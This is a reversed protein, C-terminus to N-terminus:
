VVRDHYAHISGHLMRAFDNTGDVQSLDHKGYESNHTTYNPNSSDLYHSYPQRRPSDMISNIYGRRPKGVGDDDCPPIRTRVRPVRKGVDIEPLKVPGTKRRVERSAGCPLPIAPAKRDMFNPDLRDLRTGNSRYYSGVRDSAGAASVELSSKNYSKGLDYSSLYWPDRM